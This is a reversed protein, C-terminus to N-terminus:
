SQSKFITKVKEIRKSKHICLTVKSCVFFAWLLEVKEKVEVSSPPPHDRKTPVGLVTDNHVAIQM